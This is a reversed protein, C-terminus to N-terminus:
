EHCVRRMRLYLGFPPKFVLRSEKCYIVRRFVKFPSLDKKMLALSFINKTDM